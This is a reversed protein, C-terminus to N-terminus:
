WDSESYFFQAIDNVNKKIHEIEKTTLREKWTLINEKSNRMILSEKNNDDLNTHNLITQKIKETFDIELFDFIDMYEKIPDLSIDEHRIFRWDNHKEKYHLTVSNIIRWLLIGQDIISHSSESYEIIERKFHDLHDNLLQPQDLFNQFNFGWKKIKLSAIFAAPHRILVITQMNFRSSLWDASFFAIPDKILVRKNEQRAQSYHQYNEMEKKIVPLTQQQSNIASLINYQLNITRKIPRYYSKENESTIYTFPRDFKKHYIGPSYYFPNFPEHVYVIEPSESIMRGVWTSGSRHSGTVLIPRKSM